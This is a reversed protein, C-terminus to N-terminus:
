KQLIDGFRVGVWAGVGPGHTAVVSSESKTCRRGGGAGGDGVSLLSALLLHIALMLVLHVRGCWIFIFRRAAFFSDITRKKPDYCDRFRKIKSFLMVLLFEKKSGREVYAHGYCNCQKKNTDTQTSKPSKMAIGNLM